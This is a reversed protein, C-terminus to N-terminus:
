RELLESTDDLDVGPLPPGADITPLEWVPPPEDVASRAEALYRRLSEEVLKTLSTRRALALSRAEALLHDAINVTTRM